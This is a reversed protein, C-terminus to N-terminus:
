VHEAGSPEFGRRYFWRGQSAHACAQLANLLYTVAQFKELPAVSWASGGGCEDIPRHYVPIFYTTHVGQEDAIISWRRQVGELTM